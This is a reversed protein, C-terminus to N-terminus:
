FAIIIVTIVYAILLLTVLIFMAMDLNREASSTVQSWTSAGDRRIGGSGGGRSSRSSAPAAAYRGGRGSTLAVHLLEDVGADTRADDATDLESGDTTDVLVRCPTTTAAAAVAAAAAGVAALRPWDTRPWDPRPMTAARRGTESGARDIDEGGTRQGGAAATRRQCNGEYGLARLSSASSTRQCSTSKKDNCVSAPVVPTQVPRTSSRRRQSSALDRGPFGAGGGDRYYLDDDEHAELSDCSYGGGGGGCGGGGGAGGSGGGGTLSSSRHHRGCGGCSSSSMTKGVIQNGTAGRRWFCGLPSSPRRSSGGGSADGDGTATQRRRSLVMSVCASSATIGMLCLPYVAATLLCYHPPIHNSRLM